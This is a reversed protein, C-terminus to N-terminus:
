QIDRGSFWRIRRLWNVQAGCSRRLNWGPGGGLHPEDWPDSQKVDAAYVRVGVCWARVGVCWVRVGLCWVRVGVCWARCLMFLACLCAVM